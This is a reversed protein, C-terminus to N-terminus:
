SYYIGSSTGNNPKLDRHIEKNKHIFSLGDVIQAMIDWIRTEKPPGDVLAASWISKIYGELSLDCLEMDIFAYAKDPFEGHSFITIINKHSGNCLKTM